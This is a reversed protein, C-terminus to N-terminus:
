FILAAGLPALLGSLPGTATASIPWATLLFPALIIAIVPGFPPLLALMKKEGGKLM